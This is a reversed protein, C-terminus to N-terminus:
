RGGGGKIIRHAEDFNFSRAIELLATPFINTAEVLIGIRDDVGLILTGAKSIGDYLEWGAVDQGTDLGFPRIYSGDAPSSAQTLSFPSEQAIRSLQDLDVGARRLQDSVQAPSLSTQGASISAQEGEAGPSFVVSAQPSFQQPSFQPSFQPSAQPSFQPSFQPSVQPSFQPSAQPSFQPSVQPSFQQPSFQPSFQPSAQPSFQQPLFQPSFQPSAQPSFQQPSFQPSFQPSAQPSFQPSAQPSFQPSAQPSFQPSVQPSFQPSAQPSFQPSAQSGLSFQIAQSSQAMGVVGSVQGLFAPSVQVLSLGYFPSGQLSAQRFSLGFSNGVPTQRIGGGTLFNRYLKPHNGLDALSILLSSGSPGVYTASVENIDLERHNISTTTRREFAPLKEPILSELESGPISNVREQKDLPPQKM